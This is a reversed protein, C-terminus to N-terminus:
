IMSRLEPSDVCRWDQLGRWYEIGFVQKSRLGQLTLNYGLKYIESACWMDALHKAVREVAVIIWRDSIRRRRIGFDSGRGILSM